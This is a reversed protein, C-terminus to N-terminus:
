QAVRLQLIWFLSSVLPQSSNNMGSAETDAFPRYAFSAGTRCLNTGDMGRERRQRGIPPWGCLGEIRDIRTSDTKPRYESNSHCGFFGEIKFGEAALHIRVVRFLDDARQL